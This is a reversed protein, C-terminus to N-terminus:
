QPPAQNLDVSPPTGTTNVREQGFNPLIDSLTKEPAKETTQTSTSSTTTVTKTNTGSTSKMTSNKSSSTGTLRKLADRAVSQGQAAARRIWLLGTQQDQTTGIGYYYLYGLAYQADPDGSRAAQEVRGFSCQYKQLFPNETCLTSSAFSSSPQSAPTTVPANGEISKPASSTTCGSLNLLLSVPACVTLIRRLSVKM